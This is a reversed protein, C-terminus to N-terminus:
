EERKFSEILPVLTAAVLGGSFGNNYLNMGGHLDGVNMVLTLHLFGAVIGSFWGFKGAIPALTTGFLAALMVSTSNAEWVQLMSGIFVGAIVPLINKPHKGFAGFGVVTFIGGLIPGSLEGDILLIYSLMLLGLVGMNIITVSFGDMIVFDEVLRGSHRYLRISNKFSKNNLIYGIIIMSVFLLILIISLIKNNGSSVLNVLEHEEGFARIISMAFTGIIGCIFGINYLSFGQHFKVFHGALPPLILGILIGTLNAVILSKLNTEGFGFSLQSVVPGLATGFYAILIFKSIKEKEILSYLYVGLIISFANYVNKGFFAFGGITFIAAILTGNMHVKNLHAILIAILMLLGSNFFAAGMNGIAIYDTILISPSVIISKLGIAIEKPSNAFFSFLLIIFAYSSMIIYKIPERISHPNNPQTVKIMHNM